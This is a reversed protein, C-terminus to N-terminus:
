DMGDIEREIICFSIGYPNHVSEQVKKMSKLCKQYIEGIKQFFFLHIQLINVNGGMPPTLVMKKKTFKLSMNVYFFPGLRYFHINYFHLYKVFKKIM